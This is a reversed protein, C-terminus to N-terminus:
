RSLFIVLFVGCLTIALISSLSHKKNKTQRRPDSLQKFYPEPSMMHM